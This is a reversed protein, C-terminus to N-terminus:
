GNWGYDHTYIVLQNAGRAGPFYAGAKNSYVTPNVADVQRRSQKFLIENQEMRYPEFLVDAVEAFVPVATFVFLSLVLILKKFSM